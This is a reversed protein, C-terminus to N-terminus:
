IGGMFLSFRWRRLLLSGGSSRANSPFLFSRSNACVNPKEHLVIVRRRSDKPILGTSIRGGKLQVRSDTVSTPLSVSSRMETRNPAGTSDTRRMRHKREDSRALCEAQFEARNLDSPRTGSAFNACCYPIGLRSMAIFRCDRPRGGHGLDRLRLCSTCQVCVM